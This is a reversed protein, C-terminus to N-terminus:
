RRQPAIFRANVWGAIGLYRVHCWDRDCNGIPVIGTAYAPIHGIISAEGSPYDVVDLAGWLAVGSVQFRQSGQNEDALHRRAVWGTLAEYRIMCYKAVCKRMGEVGKSDGPIWGKIAANDEPEERVPLSADGSLGALAYSKVEVGGLGDIISAAVPGAAQAASPVTNDFAQPPGPAKDEKAIADDLIWGVLAGYRIYCFKRTCTGLDEVEDVGPDIRGAVPLRESPFSYVPIPRGGSFVLRLMTDQLDPPIDKPENSPQPLAAVTDQQPAEQVAEQPGEAEKVAAVKPGGDLYKRFVWGKVGKFTVECWKSDCKGTSELRSDPPIYAIVKSRNSPTQRMHIRAAKDVNNIRFTAADAMPPTFISSAAIVSAAAVFARSSQWCGMVNNGLCGKRFGSWHGGLRANRAYRVATGEDPAM